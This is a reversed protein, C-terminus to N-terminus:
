EIDEQATTWPSAKIVGDEQTVISDSLVAEAQQLHKHCVAALDMGERYSQLAEELPLEGRELKEVLEELKGMAAEFKLPEQVEKKARAM